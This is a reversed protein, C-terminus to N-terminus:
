LRRRIALLAAAAGLEVSAFWTPINAEANLDFLNIFGFTERSTLDFGFRLMVAILSAAVLFGIIPLLLKLLRRPASTGRRASFLGRLPSEMSGRHVARFQKNMLISVRVKRSTAQWAWLEHFDM